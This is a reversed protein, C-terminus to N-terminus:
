VILSGLVFDRVIECVGPVDSEVQWWGDYAWVALHAGRLALEDRAIRLAPILREYKATPAAFKLTTM